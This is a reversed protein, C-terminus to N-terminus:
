RRKTTLPSNRLVENGMLNVETAKRWLDSRRRTKTCLIQSMTDQLADTPDQATRCDLQRRPWMVSSRLGFFRAQQLWPASFNFRLLRSVQLDPWAPWAPALLFSVAKMPKSTKSLSCLSAIDTAPINKTSVKMHAEPFLWDDLCRIWGTKEIVLHWGYFEGSNKTSDLISIKNAM